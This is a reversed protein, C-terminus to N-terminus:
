ANENDPSADTTIPLETVLIPLYANPLQALRTEATAGLETVDSTYPTKSLHKLRVFTDSGSARKVIPM